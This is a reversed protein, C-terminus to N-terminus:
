LTALAPAARVVDDGLAADGDVTYVFRGADLRDGVLLCWDVVDATVTVDPVAAPEGGDMAVTWEGGGEGTLVLRATRGPRARGSLALALPLIRGALDSMLALHRPAPTTAPLGGARRLDDTHVWTEFARVVLLDDRSMDLGRWKASGGAHAVAWERTAEVSDRWLAVADDLEAGAYRPLVEHTRTVIDTEEVDPLTPVGLCQAFLSEQAAMHVVLDHAVKNGVTCDPSGGIVVRGATKAGNQVVLDHAVSM